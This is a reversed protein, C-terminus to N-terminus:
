GDLATIMGDLDDIAVWVDMGKRWVLTKEDIGEALKIRVDQQIAIAQLPAGVPPQQRTACVRRHQHGRQHM